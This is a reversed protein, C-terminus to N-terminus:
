WCCTQISPRASSKLLYSLLIIQLVHLLLAAPPVLKATPLCAVAQAPLTGAALMADVHSPSPHHSPLASFRCLTGLSWFVAVCPKHCSSLHRAVDARAHVRDQLAIYLQCTMGGASGRPLLAMCGNPALCAQLNCLKRALLMVQMAPKGSVLLCPCPRAACAPARRHAAHLRQLAARPTCCSPLPM